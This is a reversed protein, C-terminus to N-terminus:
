EEVTDRLEAIKELDAEVVKRWVQAEEETM